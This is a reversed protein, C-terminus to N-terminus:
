HNFGRNEAGRAQHRPLGALLPTDVAALRRGATAVQSQDSSFNSPVYTSTFNVTGNAGQLCARGRCSYCPCVCLLWTLKKKRLLAAQM